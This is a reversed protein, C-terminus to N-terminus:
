LISFNHAVLICLQLKLWNLINGGHEVFEIYIKKEIFCLTTASSGNQIMKSDPTYAHAIQIMLNNNHHFYQARVVAYMKLELSCQTTYAINHM